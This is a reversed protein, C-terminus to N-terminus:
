AFVLQQKAAASLREPTWRQEWVFRVQVRKVGPLAEIAQGVWHGITRHMPCGPTTLTMEVDVNEEKVDLGYILGLDVVNIGIEPDLVERLADYIEAETPM